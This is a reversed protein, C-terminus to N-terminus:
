RTGKQTTLNPRRRRAPWPSATRLPPSPLPQPAHSFTLTRWPDPDLPGAPDLDDLAFAEASDLLPRGPRWLDDTM